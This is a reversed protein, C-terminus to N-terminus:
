TCGDSAEVEEEIAPTRLQRTDNNLTNNSPNRARSM